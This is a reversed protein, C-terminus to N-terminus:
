GKFKIKRTREIKGSDSINRVIAEKKDRIYEVVILKINAVKNTFMSTIHNIGKIQRLLQKIPDESGITNCSLRTKVEILYFSDGKKAVIDIDGGVVRLEKEVFKLGKNIVDLNDILFDRAKDHVKCKHNREQKLCASAMELSLKKSLQRIIKDDVSNM